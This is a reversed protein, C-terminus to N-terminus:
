SIGATHREVAQQSRRKRDLIEQSHGGTQGRCQGPSVRLSQYVGVYFRGVHQNVLAFGPQRSESQGDLSRVLTLCERWRDYDFTRPSVHGRLLRPSDIAKYIEAAIEVGEPNSEVLHQAARRREDCCIREFPNMAM